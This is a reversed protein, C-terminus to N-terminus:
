RGVGVRWGWGDDGAVFDRGVVRELGLEVRWWGTRAERRWGTLAVRDTREDSMLAFVNDGQAEIVGVRQLRDLAIGAGWDGELWSGAGWWSLADGGGAHAMPLGAQSFGDHYVRHGTYWRFSDDLIRAHEVALTWPGRAVEVGVLNAVGALSPVPIGAVRRAIVDEGGYQWWAEVYDLGVAGGTLTALPLTGRVDLAAIEDQDPESQDPDGYVHPDTPLLLQGLRPAPRGEGGFIGVRTAGLELYPVPVWRADMFLWGPRAVDDRPADLWGAGAEFRLRGPWPAPRGEFAVSGLPAPRAHDTLMLSGHRGPGIFRRQLGFGAKVWGADVGAWLDRAALGLAAGPALDLDIEAGLDARLSAVAPTEAATDGALMPAVRRAVSLPSRDSSGLVADCAGTRCLRTAMMWTPDGMPDAWALAATM